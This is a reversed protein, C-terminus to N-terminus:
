EHLLNLYWQKIKHRLKVIFKIKIWGLICILPIVQLSPLYKLQLFFKYTFCLEFRWFRHLHLIIVTESSNKYKFPSLFGRFISGLCDLHFPWLGHDVSLGCGLSYPSSWVLFIGLDITPIELCDVWVQMEMHTFM